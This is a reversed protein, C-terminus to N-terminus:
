HFGNNKSIEKVKGSVYPNGGVIFRLPFHKALKKNPLGIRETAVIQVPEKGEELWINSDFLTKGYDQMSFAMAQTLKGPGNSLDFGVKGGRNLEMEALPSLPAVARILVAEPIGAEMTIFNLLVQRHMQYTYIAGARRFMVETRNTRRKQYSHAAQDTEGLYAETEVILSEYKVGCTDHVLKTGLLDRAVEITTKREFFNEALKLSKGRKGRYYSIRFVKKWDDMELGM